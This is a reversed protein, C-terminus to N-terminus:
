VEFRANKTQNQKETLIQLNAPVHLGSVFKGKIPIVHDVEHQIGTEKTLRQAEIYFQKIADLDAWVPTAKKIRTQRAIIYAVWNGKQEPTRDKYPTPGLKKRKIPELKPNEVKPVLGRSRLGAYRRQHTACCCVTRYSTVLNNCEPLACKMIM